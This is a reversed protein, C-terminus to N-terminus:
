YSKKSQKLLASLSNRYTKYDQHFIKKNSDGCNM